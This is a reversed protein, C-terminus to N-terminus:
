GMEYLIGIKTTDSMKPYLKMFVSFGSFYKVSLGESPGLLWNKNFKDMWDCAPKMSAWSQIFLNFLELFISQIFHTLYTKDTQPPGHVQNFLSAICVRVYSYLMLTLVAPCNLWDTLSTWLQNSRTMRILILVLLRLWFDTTRSNEADLCPKVSSELVGTM